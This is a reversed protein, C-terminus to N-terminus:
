EVLQKNQQLIDNGQKVVEKKCEMITEQQDAVLTRLEIISYQFYWGGVLVVGLCLISLLSISITNNNNNTSDM